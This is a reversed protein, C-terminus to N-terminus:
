QEVCPVITYQAVIPVIFHRYESCTELYQINHASSTLENIETAHSRSYVCTIYKSYERLKCTVMLLYMYNIKSVEKFGTSM